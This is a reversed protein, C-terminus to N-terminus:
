SCSKREMWFTLLQNARGVAMEALLLPTGLLILLVLYLMLFVAGGNSGAIYPFKWLNGLGIASGAAALLFGLNSSWQERKM